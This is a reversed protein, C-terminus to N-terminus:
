AYSVKWAQGPQHDFRYKMPAAIYREKYFLNAVWAIAFRPVIESVFVVGRQISEPNNPIDRKVYFRLNVEPFRTHYPIRWGRLRVDDFLFGVLSVYHKGEFEDLVTGAPLWPSLVAPDIEYNAMILKQWSATLFVPKMWDTKFTTQLLAASDV